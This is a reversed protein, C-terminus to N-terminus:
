RSKVFYFTAATATAAAALRWTITTKGLTFDWRIETAGRPVRTYRISTCYSIFTCTPFNKFFCQVHLVSYFHLPFSKRLILLRVSWFLVMCLLNKEWFWNSYKPIAKPNGHSQKPLAKSYKPISQSHKSIGRHSKSVRKL